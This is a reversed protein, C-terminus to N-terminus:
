SRLSADERESKGESGQSMWRLDILVACQPLPAGISVSELDEVKEPTIHIVESSIKSEMFTPVNPSGDPLLPAQSVLANGILGHVYQRTNLRASETDVAILMMGQSGYALGSVINSACQRLSPFSTLRSRWQNAFPNPERKALM